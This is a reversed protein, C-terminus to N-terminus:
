PTSRATNATGTHQTVRVSSIETTALRRALLTSFAAAGEANLHQSNYFNSRDQTLPSESYDWIPVNFPECIARFRAFIEDRNRELDRMEHYVPSYVMLLPIRARHCIEVIEALDRVGQPEIEFTVGEPRAARFKAFDGTWATHRAVFGQRHDEPPHFGALAKLGVIWAFRMDAVVYPYLPLYKWKWADSYVRRVGAYLSPEDLYPLYQAPDFIEQTTVFSFLDLNHIILKPPTNHQLYTKLVALQMDTQSGNRGINFTTQGTIQEILRADYHSLARSSGSIVIDANVKGAVIRNTVGFSSTEVKRLGHGIARDVAFLLAVVLAFFLAIRVVGAPPSSRAARKTLVTELIAARISPSAPADTLSSKPPPM